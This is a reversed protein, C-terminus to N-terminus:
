VVRYRGRVRVVYYVIPVAIVVVAILVAAPGLFRATWPLEAEEEAEEPLIVAPEAALTQAPEAMAPTANVVSLPAPVFLLLVALARVLNAISQKM